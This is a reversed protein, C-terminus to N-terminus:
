GRVQSIYALTATQFRLMEDRSLQQYPQGAQLKYVGNPLVDYRITSRHWVKHEDLWEEHCLWTRRNMCILERRITDPQEGFLAIGVAAEQRIQDRCAQIRRQFVQNHKQRQLLRRLKNM